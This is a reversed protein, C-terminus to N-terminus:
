PQTTVVHQRENKVYDQAADLLVASPVFPVTNRMTELLKHVDDVELLDVATNESLVSPINKKTVGYLCPTLIQDEPGATFWCAGAEYMVWSSSLSNSTIIILVHRSNQLTTKIRARWLDGAQISTLNSSIFPVFHGQFVREILDELRAVIERDATAHSFFVNQRKM